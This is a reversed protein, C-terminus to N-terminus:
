VNTNPTCGREEACAQEVVAQSTRIQNAWRQRRAEYRDRVGPASVDYGTTGGGFAIGQPRIRLDLCELWEASHRECLNM